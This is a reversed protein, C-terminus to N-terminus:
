QYQHEGQLKMSQQYKMFDALAKPDIDFKYTPPPTEYSKILGPLDDTTFDQISKVGYTRNGTIIALSIKGAEFPGFANKLLEEFIGVEFPIDYVRSISSWHGGEWNHVLVRKNEGDSDKINTATLAPQQYYGLSFSHNIRDGEYIRWPEDKLQGVALGEFMCSATLYSKSKDQEDVVRNIQSVYWYPPTRGNGYKKHERRILEVQVDSIRGGQQLTPIDWLKGTRENTVLKLVNHARREEPHTHWYTCDKALKESVGEQVMQRRADEVISKEKEFPGLLWEKLNSETLEFRCDISEEKTPHHKTM